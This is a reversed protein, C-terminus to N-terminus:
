ADAIENPIWLYLIACLGGLLDFFIDSSSEFIDFPAQAIYNHFLFEFVEWGFGIVLVFFLMKLIPHSPLAESTFLYVAVLGLWVGGLFHMIIDFYWVSYYLHFKNALLSLVFIFFVLSGLLKLLNKREM